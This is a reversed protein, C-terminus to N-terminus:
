LTYPWSAGPTAFYAALAFGRWLLALPLLSTMMHQLDQQVCGSVGLKGIM